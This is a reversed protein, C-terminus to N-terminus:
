TAEMDQRNYIISSNINLHINDTQIKTKNQKKKWSYVWFHFQWIM